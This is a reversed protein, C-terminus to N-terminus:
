FIDDSAVWKHARLVVLRSDSNSCLPFLCVFVFLFVYFRSNKAYDQPKEAIVSESFM